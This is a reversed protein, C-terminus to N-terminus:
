RTSFWMQKDWPTCTAPTAHCAAILITAPTPSRTCLVPSPQVPRINPPRVISLDPSATHRKCRARPSSSRPNRPQAKFGLDVTQWSLIVPVTQWHNSRLLLTIIKKVKAEFSTPRNERIQGWFCHSPKRQKPRLVPPVTKESKVEFSVTITKDPKVEFGTPCTERNTGWFQCSRNLSKPRLIVAVTEQKADWFYTSSPKDTAGWFRRSCAVTHPMGWSRAAQKVHLFTLIPNGLKAASAHRRTTCTAGDRLDCLSSTLYPHISATPQM